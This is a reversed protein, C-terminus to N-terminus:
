YTQIDLSSMGSSLAIAITPGGSGAAAWSSEGFAPIGSLHKFAPPVNVASLGSKSDVTVTADAPVMVTVATVGGSVNVKVDPAKKGIWVRVSSAGVNLDVAGVSLDRLDAEAEAAGVDLRLRRWELTRDLALDVTRDAPPLVVIGETRDSVTVDAVGGTVSTVLRPRAGSAGSGSIAALQDGARISLRAAGVKVAAVGATLRADHPASTQYAVVNGGGLSLGGSRWGPGLVFVGYVLGLILLVNSLARVWDLHLGRGLLEIGLAVLLLPWLSLMTLWVGWSIVGFSDGLLVLGVAITGAGEAVRKIVAEGRPRAMQFAGSVIVILPWLRFVDFWPVFRGFLMVVGIIILLIGFASGGRRAGRPVRRREGGAPERTPPATPPTQVADTRQPPEGAVPAGERTEDSV